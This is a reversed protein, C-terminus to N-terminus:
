VSDWNNYQIVIFNEFSYHYKDEGSKSPTASNM